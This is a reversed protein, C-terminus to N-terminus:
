VASIISLTQARADCFKSFMMISSTSTNNCEFRKDEKMIRREHSCVGVSGQMLLQLQEVAHRLTSGQYFVLNLGQMCTGDMNVAMSAKHSDADSNSHAFASGVNQAIKKKAIIL